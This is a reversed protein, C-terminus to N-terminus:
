HFVVTADRLIDLTTGRMEVYVHSRNPRGGTDLQAVDITRGAATRVFARRGPGVGQAPGAGVLLRFRDGDVAVGVVRGEIAGQPAPRVFSTSPNVVVDVGGALQARLEHAPLDVFAVCRNLRVEHLEFRAIPRSPDGGAVVHGSMGPRVGHVYGRGILIRTRATHEDGDGDQHDIAIVRAPMDVDAGGHGDDHAGDEAAAARRAALSRDPADHDAHGGRDRGHGHDHDTTRAHRHSRTTSM